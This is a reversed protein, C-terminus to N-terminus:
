LSDWDINKRKWEETFVFKWGLKKARRERLEDWDGFTRQFMSKWVVNDHCRIRLTECVQSLTCIDKVELFSTIKRLIGQPMRALWEKSAYALATQLVDEGFSKTVNRHMKADNQFEESSMREESPPHFKLQHRYKIHWVRWIVEDDATIILECYDKSPSPAQGSKTYIKVLNRKNNNNSEQKAMVVSKSSPSKNVSKPEKISTGMLLFSPSKLNAM